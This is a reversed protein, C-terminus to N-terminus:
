RSQGGLLRERADISPAHAPNEALAVSHWAMADSTRGLTEYAEALAYALGVRDEAAARSYSQRFNEYASRLDKMATQLEANRALHVQAEAKKGQRLLAQGLRHHHEAVDPQLEFARTALRVQEDVNEQREAVIARFKWCEASEDAAAPVDRLAQELGFLDATQYLCHLWAEWVRVDDSHKEVCQYLQARAKEPNNAELYYLGVARRTVYDDPDKELAPELLGLAIQPDVMIFEYRARMELPEHRGLPLAHQFLEETMARLEARRRELALLNCLQRRAEQRIRPMDIDSDPLDLCERWAREARRRWKAQHWAQGTRLLAEGREAAGAPVKELTAACQAFDKQAAFVRGSLFLARTDDPTRALYRDLALKAAVWEQRNAMREIDELSRPRDVLMIVATCAAATLTVIAFVTSV